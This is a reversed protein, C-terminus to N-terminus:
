ADGSWATHFQVTEVVNKVVSSVNTVIAAATDSEVDSTDVAKISYTGVLLPVTFGTADKSVRPVMINSTGWTAGSTEKSHRIVYHSLDLDTVEDWSLYIQDGLVDMNFNTVDSPPALLGQLEFTETLYQGRFGGLSDRPRVRFTYSGAVTDLLDISAGSTTGIDRFGTDGPGKYSVEYFGVRADKSPTWSLTIASQVSVGAKFLYETANLNTPSELAGTKFTSYLPKELKLNQEVRAFKTPDHFLATIEMENKEVERVALVRFKRPEVDSGTLVWM